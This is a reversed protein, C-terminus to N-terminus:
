HRNSSLLVKASLLIIAKLGKMRLWIYM